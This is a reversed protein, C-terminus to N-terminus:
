FAVPQNIILYHIGQNIQGNMPDFKEAYFFKPNLYLRAAHLPKHLQGNWRRDIMDWILRFKTADYVYFAGIAEKTRAMAEYLYGM